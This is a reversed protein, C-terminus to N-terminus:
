SLGRAGPLYLLSCSRRAHISDKQTRTSRRLNGISSDCQRTCHGDHVPPSCISHSAAALNKPLHQARQQTSSTCNSQPRLAAPHFSSIIRSLSGSEVYPSGAADNVAMVLDGYFCDSCVEWSWLLARMPFRSWCTVALLVVAHCTPIAELLMARRDGTMLVCVESEVFVMPLTGSQPSSQRRLM